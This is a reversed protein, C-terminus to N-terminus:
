KSLEAWGGGVRVMVTRSRLIRCFCLKPDAGGIWYKGSQDKWTDAVVEVNINVPLRNVVDGVAVDLKSKPNAIYTQKKWRQPGPSDAHARAVPGFSQRPARAWTGHSGTSRSSKGLQSRSSSESGAPSPVRLNQRPTRLTSPSLMSSTTSTISNTRQRSAFTPWYLSSTSVLPGSVSRKTPTAPTQLSTQAKSAHVGSVSRPVPNPTIPGGGGRGRVSLQSFGSKKDVPRLSSASARSNRGSSYTSAPRSVAGTIRDNAMELLEKFTQEIRNHETAARPDDSVFSFDARLAQVTNRTFDLRSSLQEEPCLRTDMSLSSPPLGLPVSPFSDIHDLLDSLTQDCLSVSSSLKALAALRHLYPRTDDLEARLLRLETDPVDAPFHLNETEGSIVGFAAAAEECQKTTPLFSVSSSHDSQLPIQVLASIGLSQLRDRLSHVRALLEEM